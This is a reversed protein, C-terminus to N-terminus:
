FRGAEEGNAIRKCAAAMVEEHSVLDGQHAVSVGKGVAEAFWEGHDLYKEFAQDIVWSRSRGLSAALLDLRSVKAKDIRISATPTAM